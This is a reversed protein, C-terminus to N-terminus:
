RRRGLPFTYAVGLQWTVQDTRSFRPQLTVSGDPNDVIDGETLYEAEGGYFYRAGAHLKWASSRGFPVYVGGGFIWASTVDNANNTSAYEYESDSGRVSTTTVLDMFGIAGNIYPQIPGVPVTIQPGISGWFANNTTEVDLSVRGTIPLYPVHLTESGYQMGGLDGRISFLGERDLRFLGAVNAGFGETDLQTAFEGKPQSVLLDGVLTFRSPGSDWSRPRRRQAEASTTIFSMAVVTALIWSRVSQM